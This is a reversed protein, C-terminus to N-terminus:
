FAGVGAPIGASVGYQPQSSGINLPTQQQPYFPTQQTTFPTNGLNYLASQTQNPQNLCEIVTSTVAQCVQGILNMLNQPQWTGGYPNQPGQFLQNQGWPTQTFQYPSPQYLNQVTQITAQRVLEQLANPSQWDGYTLTPNAWLSGQYPTGFQAPNQFGFQGPQGFPTQLGMSSPIGCSSLVRPVIQRVIENINNQMQMTNIGFPQNQFPNVGPGYTSQPGQFPTTRPFPMSSQQFPHTTGFNGTTWNTGAMTSPHIM